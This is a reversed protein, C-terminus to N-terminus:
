LKEKKIKIVKNISKVDDNYSGRKENGGVSRAEGGM